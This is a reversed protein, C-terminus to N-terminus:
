YVGIFEMFEQLPYPVLVIDGTKFDADTPKQNFLGIVWWYEVSNYYQQSIKHLRDGDKWVIQYFDFDYEGLSDDLSYTATDYHVIRKLGRKELIKKYLESSTELVNRNIYRSVAM